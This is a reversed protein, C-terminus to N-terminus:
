FIVLSFASKPRKLSTTKLYLIFDKVDKMQDCLCPREDWTTKAPPKLVPKVTNEM